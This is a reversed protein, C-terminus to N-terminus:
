WCAPNNGGECYNVGQCFNSRSCDICNGTDPDCLEDHGCIVGDCPSQPCNVQSITSDVPYCVPRDGQWCEPFGEQECYAGDVCAFANSCDVVPPCYRQSLPHDPTYCVPSDNEWCLPQDGVDCYSGNVCEFATSCDICTGNDPDCVEQDGCEVTDCPNIPTCSGTWINLDSDFVLTGEYGQNCACNPAGSAQEPCPVAECNFGDGVYGTNCTCDYGEVQDNCTANPDCEDLNSECENSAECDVYDIQTCILEPGCTNLVQDDGPCSWGSTEGLDFLTTQDLDGTSFILNNAYDANMQQAETELSGAPFPGSIEAGFSAVQHDNYGSLEIVNV